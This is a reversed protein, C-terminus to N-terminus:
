LLIEAIEIFNQLIQQNKKKQLSEFNKAFNQQYNADQQQYQISLGTAIGKTVPDPSVTAVIPAVKKVISSLWSM